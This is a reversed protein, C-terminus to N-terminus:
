SRDHRIEEYDVYEGEENLRKKLAQRKADETKASASHNNGSQEDAPTQNNQRSPAIRFATFIRYVVWALILTWILDRM